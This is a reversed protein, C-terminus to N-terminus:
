STPTADANRPTRPFRREMWNLLRWLAVGEAIAFPAFILGTTFRPIRILFIAAIQVAGVAGILVWMRPDRRSSWKTQVVVAFVYLSLAVGFANELTTFFSMAIQVIVIVALILWDTRSTQAAASRPHIFRM